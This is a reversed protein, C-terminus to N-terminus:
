NPAGPQAPAPRPEPETLEGCLSRAMRRKIEAPPLDTTLPLFDDMRCASGNAHHLRLRESPPLAVAVDLPLLEEILPTDSRGTNEIEAVWEVAGCDDFRRVHLTVQLGTVPDLRTLQAACGAPTEREATTVQWDDLFGASPRDDYRFSLAPLSALDLFSM